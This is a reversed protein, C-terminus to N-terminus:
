HANDTSRDQSEVEKRDGQQINSGFALRGHSRASEMPELDVSISPSSDAKRTDVDNDTLQQIFWNRISM